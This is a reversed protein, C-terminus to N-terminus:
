MQRHNRLHNPFPLAIRVQNLGIVLVLLAMTAHAAELFVESEMAILLANFQHATTYTLAVLLRLLILPRIAGMRLIVLTVHAVLHMHLLRRVYSKSVFVVLFIRLLLLRM